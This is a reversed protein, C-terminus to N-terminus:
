VNFIIISSSTTPAGGIGWFFGAFLAFGGILLAAIIVTMISDMAESRAEQKKSAMIMKIGIVVVAIGILAGGFAVAIGKNAGFIAKAVDTSNHATIQKDNTISNSADTNTEALVRTSTTMLIVGISTVITSMKLWMKKANGNIKKLKEKIM